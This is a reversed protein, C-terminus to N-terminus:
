CSESWESNCYYPWYCNFTSCLIFLRRSTMRRHMRIMNAKAININYNFQLPQLQRVKHLSWASLESKICYAAKTQAGKCLFYTCEQSESWCDVCCTTSCSPKADRCTAADPRGRVKAHGRRSWLPCQQRGGSRSANGRDGRAGAPNAAEKRGRMFLNSKGWVDMRRIIYWSCIICKDTCLLVLIAYLHFNDLYVCHM